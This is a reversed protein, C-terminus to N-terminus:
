LCSFCAFLSKDLCKSVVGISEPDESIVLVILVIVASDCLVFVLDKIYSNGLLVVGELV